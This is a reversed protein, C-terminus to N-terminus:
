GSQVPNYIAAFGSTDKFSEWTDVVCRCKPQSLSFAYPVQNYVNCITGINHTYMTYRKQMNYPSWPRLWAIKHYNKDQNRVMMQSSFIFSNDHHNNIYRGIEEAPQLERAWQKAKVHKRTNECNTPWTRTTHKIVVKLKQRTYKCKIYDPRDLFVRESESAQSLQEHCLTVGVQINYYSSYVESLIAWREFYCLAVVSSYSTPPM